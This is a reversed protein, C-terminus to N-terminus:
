DCVAKVDAFFTYIKKNDEAIERQTLFNSIYLNNITSRERRFKAQYHSIKKKEELEEKLRKQVIM